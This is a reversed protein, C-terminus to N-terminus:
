LARCAQSHKIGKEIESIYNISSGIYNSVKELTYGKEIRKLRLYEGACLKV